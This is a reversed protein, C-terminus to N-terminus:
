NKKFLYLIGLKKFPSPGIWPYIIDNTVRERIENENLNKIAYDGNQEVVESASMKYIISDKNNMIKSVEKQVYEENITEFDNLNSNHYEFKEKARPIVGKFIIGKKSIKEKYQGFCEECTIIHGESNLQEAFNPHLIHSEHLYLVDYRFDDSLPLKGDMERIDIGNNKLFDFYEKKLEKEVDGYIIEKLNYKSFVRYPTFDNGCGPYYVTKGEPNIGSNNILVELASAIDSYFREEPKRNKMKEFAKKTEPDMKKIKIGHRKFYAENLIGNKRKEENM